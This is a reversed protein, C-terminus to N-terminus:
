RRAKPTQSNLIQRREDASLGPVELAKMKRKMAPTFRIGEVASVKVMAKQGLTFSGTWRGDVGQVRLEGGSVRLGAKAAQTAEAQTAFVATARVAGDRKVQWGGGTPTVFVRAPGASTGANLKSARKESM